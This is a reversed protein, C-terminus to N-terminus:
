HKKPKPKISAFYKSVLEQGKPSLGFHSPNANLVRLQNHLTWFFTPVFVSKLAVADSPVAQPPATQKQAAIARALVEKNLEAAEAAAEQKDEESWDEPLSDTLDVFDDPARPTEDRSALERGRIKNTLMERVAALEAGAPMKHGAVTRNEKIQQPTLKKQKMKPLQTLLEARAIAQQTLPHETLGKQKMEGRLTEIADRKGAAVNLVILAHYVLNTPAIGRSKMEEFLATGKALGADPARACESILSAYARATPKSSSDAKWQDLYKLAKTLNGAQCAARIVSTWMRANPKRKSAYSDFFESVQDFKKQEQLFDLYHTV